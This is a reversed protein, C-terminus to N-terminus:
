VIRGDAGLYAIVADELAGEQMIWPALGSERIAADIKGRLVGMTSDGADDLTIGRVERALAITRAARRVDDPSGLALKDAVRAAVRLRSRWRRPACEVIGEVQQTFDM